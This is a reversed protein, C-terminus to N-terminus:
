CRDLPVLRTFYTHAIVDDAAFVRDPHLRHRRRVGEVDLLRQGLDHAQFLGPALDDTHGNGFLFVDLRGFQDAVPDLDREDRVNM